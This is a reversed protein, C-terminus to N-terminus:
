AGSTAAARREAKFAGGTEFWYLAAIGYAGSATLWGSDYAGDAATLSERAAVFAVSAALRQHYATFVPPASFRLPKLIHIAGNAALM